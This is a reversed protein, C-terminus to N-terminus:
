LHLSHFDYFGLSDLRRFSYVRIQLNVQGNPKCLVTTCEPGTGWRDGDKWVFVGNPPNAEAAPTGKAYVTLISRAMFLLRPPFRFFAAPVGAM